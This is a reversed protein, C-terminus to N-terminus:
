QHLPLAFFIRVGQQELCVILEVFFKRTLQLPLIRLNNETSYFICFSVPDSPVPNTSLTLSSSQLNSFPDRNSKDTPNHHHENGCPNDPRFSFAFPEALPVLLLTKQIAATEKTFKNM